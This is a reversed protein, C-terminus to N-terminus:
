KSIQALNLARTAAKDTVPTTPAVIKAVLAQQTTAQSRNEFWKFALTGLFIVSGLYAQYDSCTGAAISAQTCSAFVGNAALFLGLGAALHSVTDSVMNQVFSSKLFWNLMAIEKRYAQITSKM